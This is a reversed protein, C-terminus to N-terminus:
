RERTQGAEQREHIKQIVHRAIKHDQPVEPGPREIGERRDLAADQIKYLAESMRGLFVAESFGKMFGRKRANFSAMEQRYTVTIGDGNRAPEVEYSMTIDDGPRVIHTAYRLGSAYEVIETETRHHPDDADEIYRYGARLASPDAQQGTARAIQLLVGEEVQEFFEDATIKLDRTIRM